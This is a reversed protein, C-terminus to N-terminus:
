VFHTVIAVSTTSGCEGLSSCNVKWANRHIWLADCASWWPAWPRNMSRCSWNCTLCAAALLTNSCFGGFSALLRVQMVEMTNMSQLGPGESPFPAPGIAVCPLAGDPARVCQQTGPYLQSTFLEQGHWQHNFPFHTIGQEKMPLTSKFLVAVNFLTFRVLGHM